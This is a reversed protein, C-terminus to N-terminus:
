RSPTKKNLWDEQDPPGAPRSKRPRKQPVAKQEEFQKKLAAYQLRLIFFKYWGIAALAALLLILLLLLMSPSFAFQMIRQVLSSKAAVKFVYKQSAPGKTGDANVVAAWLEYEGSSRLPESEFKFKGREDTKVGYETILGYASKVSVISNANPYVSEGSAYATEGFKTSQDYYTITPAVTAVTTIAASHSATNGAKDFAVVTVAHVGPALMTSYEAGNVVVPKAGDITIQFNEIGSNDDNAKLLFKTSGDDQPLVDFSVQRPPESDIHLAYVTTPSWKQADKYRIIFYSVGDDVDTLTRMNTDSPLEKSPADSPDTSLTVQLRKVDAPNKWVLIPDNQAYWTTQDPHTPSTVVLKQLTDSAVPPTPKKSEDPAPAPEPSPANTPSITVSVSNQGTLVDTGLGDSAKVAASSFFLSAVGPEKAKFLITVLQGSGNYGPNTIGGNFSVVGRVNSFTPPEVWMSFLSSKSDVSIVELLDNPYNIIAEANNIFINQSNVFVKVTFLNDVTVKNTSAQLALTAASAFHTPLLFMGVLAAIVIKTLYNQLARRPM